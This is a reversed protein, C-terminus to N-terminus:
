PITAETEHEGDHSGLIASLASVNSRLEDLLGDLEAVVQRVEAERSAV